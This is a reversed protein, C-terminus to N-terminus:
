LPLMGKNFDLSKQRMMVKRLKMGWCSASFLWDDWLFPLDPTPPFEKECSRLEKADFHIVLVWIIVIMWKSTLCKKKERLLVPNKTRHSTTLPCCLGHSEQASVLLSPCPKMGMQKSCQGASRWICLLLAMKNNVYVDLVDTSMWTSTPYLKQAGIRYMGALSASIGNAIDAFNQM